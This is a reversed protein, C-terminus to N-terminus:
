RSMGGTSRLRAFRRAGAVVLGASGLFLFALTGPEPVVQFPAIIRWGEGAADIMTVRYEYSAFPGTSPDLAFDFNDAFLIPFHSHGDVLFPPDIVDLAPVSFSTATSFYRGM